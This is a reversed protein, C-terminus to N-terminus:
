HSYSHQCTHQGESVILRLYEGIGCGNNDTIILNALGRLAPSANAMAIAEGVVRFMEADNDGDGFAITSKATLNQQNLWCLTAQGKNVGFGTIDLKNPASLDAQLYIKLADRLQCLAVKDDSSALIKYVDGCRTKLEEISTIIAMEGQANNMEMQKKLGLFHASEQTAFTGNQAYITFYFQGVNLTELLQNLPEGEITTSHNVRQQMPDYQYAGNCCIMPATIGLQNAYPLMLNHPRGSALTVQYGERLALKIADANNPNVQHQDNLLTGDLDIIIAQYKM